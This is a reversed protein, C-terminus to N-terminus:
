VPLGVYNEALTTLAAESGLVYALDARHIRSEFAQDAPMTHLMTTMWWSFREAKWVRALAQESYADLAASDGDRYFATLARTLYHVDSAALNLGKAGTPPVIHAADGALFLRGHRMPEAVFSRMPTVSKDRLPGRPVTTGDALRAELEDWIKEDPWDEPDTDPTVQIYHRAVTASRMSFLAFGRPHRAYILEDAPPPADALIGLWAFPYVKEYVKLIDAPISQRSVGHFGDCGAVFDATLVQDEGNHRFRITAHDGDTLNELQVNEAEFRLDGQTAIRAEILDHVVQTQGYVMVAKGGTHGSLDVRQRAGDLSLEIGHHVLGDRDMNTAVGAERMLDQAIQELIGARIRGEVYTRDRRELVVSSIGHVHLLQSLLLGAPGAGIIAVQTHM